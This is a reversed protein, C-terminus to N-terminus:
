DIASELAAISRDSQGSWTLANALLRAGTALPRPEDLLELAGLGIQALVPEVAADQDVLAIRPVHQHAQGLLAAGVHEDDAVLAHLPPEQAAHGVGNGM